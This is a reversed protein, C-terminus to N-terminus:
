ETYSLSEAVHHGVDRALGPDSTGGALVGYGFGGADANVIYDVCTTQQCEDIIGGSFVYETMSGFQPHPLERRADYGHGFAAPEHPTYDIILVFGQPGRVTTRYLRNATPESETPASWGRGAPIETSYGFTKPTYSVYRAPRVPAAGSSAPEAAASGTSPANNKKAATDGNPRTTDKKASTKAVERASGGDRGSDEAQGGLLLVAAAGLAVLAIIAAPIAIRRGPARSRALRATPTDPTSGYETFSPAPPETSPSAPRMSPVARRTPGLSDPAGTAAAGTAVSHEVMPAPAGSAAAQAARGLDGASPFRDEPRKAMARAVVEDLARPVHPNVEAVSPPPENAHGWMKQISSGEYPVRGSLTQFLVCGLSYIDARADVRGRDLVEPAIYDLTGVWEGTHTLQTSAASDKAIGFDTLYAHPEGDPESVLVNAPKVDRHILGRTHAADLAAGVQRAILAALRPELGGRRALLAALDTGDVYRMALYLLGEAEGAEFLPVVHPHDLAAALRAEREFRAKYGEDASLDSAMVKLAVRRGLKVQEALYVVGMGGRGIERDLRFGGLLEGLQAAGRM